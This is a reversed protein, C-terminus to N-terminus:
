DHEDGFDGRSIFNRWVKERLDRRDSYTLFPEVSSRTNLVAWEGPHKNEEAAAALSSRFSDPLGTLDKETLYTIHSAEDALHNQSFNTTFTSLKQNIGALRKKAAPDLKAGYRVFSDYYYWSLRQQEPTLKAKDPSNYVAEIRHFLKENQYIKDNFAALKPDME